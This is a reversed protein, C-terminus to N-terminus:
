DNRLATLPEVRSARLAPLFSAFLSVATLVVAVAVFIRPDRASIEFLLSELATGLAFSIALGAALGVVVPRASELLVMMLVSEHRAGLAMRIGIEGTRRATVYAVVGYLGLCALLLAAAAFAAALQAQFRERVVSTEVIQDFTRFRSLPLTADIRQVAQRLADDFARPDGATRVVYDAGTRILSWYPEYAIPVADEALGLTRVDSVVGIVEMFPDDAAGNRRFRKGIASEGPWLKQALAESVLGVARNRDNPQLFRGESLRIGSAQWYGPSVFRFDAVVPAQADRAEPTAVGDGWDGGELPLKSTLGASLVGPVNRLEQLLREHFLPREEPAYSVRPLLIQFSVIGETEFGKDVSTLRFLSAGLLGAAVLLVVSLAVEAAVLAERLRAAPRGDSSRSQNSQMVSAPSAGASRFAPLLATLGAALATLGCAYAFMRGDLRVEDLRPLEPPAWAVLADVAWGAMVWSLAGGCLALLLSEQLARTSLRLRGAGLALRVASDRARRAARVLMLNSLNLCVMLLVAAVAALLMWLGTRASGVVAEMMSVLHVSTTLNYPRVLDALAATMETMAQEPTADPRLRLLARFNHSGAAGVADYRIQLPRVMQFTRPGRVSSRQFVNGAEFRFNDPLVGVIEAPRGNVEIRSGLVALDGGYRRRWFSGTLMVVPEAGPLDDQASLPRGLIPEIGLTPLFDHTVELADVRIPPGDGSVNPADYRFLALGECASCTRRWEDFHRANVPLRDYDQAMEPVFEYISYLREADPYALPKLLVGNVISFMATTAGIGLAFLLVATLSFARDRWLTRALRHIAFL